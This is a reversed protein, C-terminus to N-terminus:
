MAACARPGEPSDREVYRSARADTGTAWALLVCTGAAGRVTIRREALTGLVIGAALM